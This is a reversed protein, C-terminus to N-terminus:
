VLDNAIRQARSADYLALNCRRYLDAGYVNYDLRNWIVVAFGIKVSESIFYLVKQQSEVHLYPNEISTLFADTGEPRTIGVRRIIKLGQSRIKNRHSSILVIVSVLSGHKSLQVAMSFNYCKTVRLTKTKYFATM